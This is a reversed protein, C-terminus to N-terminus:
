VHLSKETIIESQLHGMYCEPIIFTYTYKKLCVFNFQDTSFVYSSKRNQM